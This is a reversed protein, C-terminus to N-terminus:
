IIIYLSAYILKHRYLNYTHEIHTCIYYSLTLKPLIVTTTDIYDQRVNCHPTGHALWSNKGEEQIILRIVRFALVFACAVQSSSTKAWVDEATKWTKDLTAETNNYLQLQTSHRQLM